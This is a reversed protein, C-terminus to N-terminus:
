TTPKLSEKVLNFGAQLTAVGAHFKVPDAIQAGKLNEVVSMVSSALDPIETAVDKHDVLDHVFQDVGQAGPVVQTAVQEGVKLLAALISNM